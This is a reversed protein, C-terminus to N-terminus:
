GDIVASAADSICTVGIIFRDGGALDARTYRAHPVAALGASDYLAPLTERLRSPIASLSARLSEPLVAAGPTFRSVTFTANVDACALTIKFRADWVASDNAWLIKEDTILAPERAIMLVNGDRTLLCGHLSADRWPGSTLRAYLRALSEFRPGYTQGGAATLLRALARLAVEEPADLLAAVPMCVVGLDGWAAKALLGGVAYDLAARARQLHGVTALLRERTLGEQELVQSAQRFRVRASAPSQNSPDEIWPQDLTRCTEVLQAKGFALLPRAIVTGDRKSMPAMAALGDVGSGRALRLLFTEVQDDAHHAVFLHSAGNVACWDTMLRYRADRAAKQASRNLTRAHLGEDWRLIRHAIEHRDLWAGVQAAEVAAADRLRHDVTLATITIRPGRAWQALLRVLALSDAGGSVAVAIHAGPTLRFPAMAAGFQAATISTDTAPQPRM